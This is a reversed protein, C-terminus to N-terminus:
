YSGRLETFVTRGPYPHAQYGRRDSVNDIGLALEVKPSIRCSGRLDVFTFSSVGGYVDPHIDLNYTDNYARGSHRIGISGMWRSDPRYAALLNARVKPVRLWHKGVSAPDAANAAVKSNAFAANADLSVGRALWDQTQWVVELGSTKVRDVNSVRTVSPTVTNDSQRLIADRVDDHFVSVRLRQLEWDKEASLELADSREAKLNPDSQTQATATFTGNYLEEVNPFRVGRGLSAKFLLDADARWALSAKPSSGRLRREPYALVRNFSGDGNDICSLAGAPACTAARLL